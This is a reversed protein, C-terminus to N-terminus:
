CSLPTRCVRSRPASCPQRRSRNARWDPSPHSCGPRRSADVTRRRPFIGPGSLWGSSGSAASRATSCPLGCGPRADTRCRWRGRCSCSSRPLEGGVEDGSIKPNWFSSNKSISSKPVRAAGETDVTEPRRYAPSWLDGSCWNELTRFFVWDSVFLERFVDRLHCDLKTVQNDLLALKRQIVGNPAKTM